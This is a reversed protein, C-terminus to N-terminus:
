PVKFDHIYQRVYQVQATYGMCLRGRIVRALGRM